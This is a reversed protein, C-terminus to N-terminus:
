ICLTPRGAALGRRCVWRRTVKGLRWGLARDARVRLLLNYGAVSDDALGRVTIRALAPRGPAVSVLRVVAPRGDGASALGARLRRTVARAVGIPAAAAPPTGLLRAIEATADSPASLVPKPFAAAPAPLAALAAAGLLLLRPARV